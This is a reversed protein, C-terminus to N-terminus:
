PSPPIHGDRLRDPPWDVGCQRLHGLVELRLQKISQPSMRARLIAKMDECDSWEQWRPPLAEIASIAYALAKAIIYGDRGTVNAASISATDTM